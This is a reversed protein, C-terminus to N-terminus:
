PNGPPPGSRYLYNVLYLVDGINIVGDSNVDGCEAMPDCQPPSGNKYLYAVLHVVDGIDVSGDGNADGCVIQCHYTWAKFDDVAAEVVWAMGLDSAEFRVRVQDTPTVYNGV